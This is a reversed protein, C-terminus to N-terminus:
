ENVAKNKKPNRPEFLDDLKDRVEDWDRAEKIIELIKDIKINVAESAARISTVRNGKKEWGKEKKMELDTQPYCILTPKHKTGNTRDIVM